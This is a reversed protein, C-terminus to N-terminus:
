ANNKWHLISGNRGMPNQPTIRKHFAHDCPQVEGEHQVAPHLHPAPSSCRPCKKAMANLSDLCDEHYPLNNKASLVEDGERIEYLCYPCESM